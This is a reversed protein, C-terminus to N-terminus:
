LRFTNWCGNRGDKASVNKHGMAGLELNEDVTLLPIIERGQPVYGMGALSRRFPKMKTIDRGDFTM